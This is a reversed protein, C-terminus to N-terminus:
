CEDPQYLLDHGKIWGNFGKIETLGEMDRVSGYFIVRKAVQCLHSNGLNDRDTHWRCNVM